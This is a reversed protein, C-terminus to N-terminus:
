MSDIIDKVSSNANFPPATPWSNIHGPGKLLTINDLARELIKRNNDLQHLFTQGMGAPPPNVKILDKYSKYPTGVMVGRGETANDDGPKNWFDKILNCSMGPVTIGVCQPKFPALTQGGLNVNPLCGGLTGGLSLHPLTYSPPTFCKRYQFAPWPPILNNLPLTLGLFDKLHDALGITPPLTPMVLSGCFVQSHPTINMDLGLGSFLNSLQQTLKLAQDLCTLNIVSAPRKVIQKIYASDKVREAEAHNELIKKVEPNCPVVADGAMAPAMSLALFAAVLLPLFFIKKM